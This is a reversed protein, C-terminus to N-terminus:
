LKDGNFDGFAAITGDIGDLGVTNPELNYLKSKPFRTAYNFTQALITTPLLACLTWQIAKM